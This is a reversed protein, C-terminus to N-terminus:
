ICACLRRTISVSASPSTTRGLGCRFSVGDDGIACGLGVACPADPEDLPGLEFAALVAACNENSGEAGAFTGTAPDYTRGVGDCVDNCSQGPTGLYWCAGGLEVGCTTIATALSQTHATMLAQLAEANGTVPCAGAAKTEVRAISARFKTDCQTFSPLRDDGVAQAQARLRCAVYKAAVGLKDVVCRDAPDLRAQSTSALCSLV